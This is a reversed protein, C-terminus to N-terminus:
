GGPHWPTPAIRNWFSFPLISTLNARRLSCPAPLFPGHRGACRWTTPCRTAARTPGPVTSPTPCACPTSKLHQRNPSLSSSWIMAGFGNKSRRGAPSSSIDWHGHHPRTPGPGTSGHCKWRDRNPITTCCCGTAPPRVPKSTGTGAPTSSQPVTKRTGPGPWPSRRSVAAPPTIWRLSWRM